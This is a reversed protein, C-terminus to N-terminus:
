IVVSVETLSTCLSLPGKAYRSAVAALRWGSYPVCRRLLRKHQHACGLEM